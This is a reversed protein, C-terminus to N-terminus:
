ADSEKLIADLEDDFDNKPLSRGKPALPALPALRAEGRVPPLGVKESKPPKEKIAKDEDSMQSIKSSENVPEPEVVKPPDEKSSANGLYFDTKKSKGKKTKKKPAEKPSSGGPKSAEQNMVESATMASTVEVARPTLISEMKEDVEAKPKNELDDVKNEDPKKASKARREREKHETSISM